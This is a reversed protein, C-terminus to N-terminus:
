ATATEADESFITDLRDMAEAYDEMFDYVVDAAPKRAHILGVGQGCPYTALEKAGEHGSEAATAVINFADEVLMSQLPMPLPGPSAPAEWEQQWKTYLQRVTKGTRERTRRTDRSSAALMKDKVVEITEAEDTALWVSGTWVGAAGLAMAAAMQRGTSIGGAALVPVKRIPRIAELVEPVLVMLGVEGTHGGAEYAQAILIDAGAEVQRVAHEAAGILAAVPVGAARAREIMFTPPVGLANAVLKVPHSFTVDLMRQTGAESYTDSWQVREKLPRHEPDENPQLGYRRLIDNVFAWNEEPIRKRMADASADEGKGEFKAPVVLDVGYPKGKVQEDIWSLEVELEDPTYKVAGFVGFGGANTVAAVVDRCHTFALLPFEIGLMDCIPTKM